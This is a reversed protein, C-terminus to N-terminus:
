EVVAITWLVYALIRLSFAVNEVRPRLRLSVVNEILPTLSLLNLRVCMAISTLSACGADDRPFVDILDRPGLGHASLVGAQQM